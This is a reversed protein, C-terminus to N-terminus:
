GLRKLMNCRRSCLAARRWPTVSIFSHVFPGQSLTWICPAHLSNLTGAKLPAAPGSGPFAGLWSRFVATPHDFCPQSNKTWLANGVFSGKVRRKWCSFLSTRILSSSRTRALDQITFMSTLELSESSAKWKWPLFFTATYGLLLFFKWQPWESTEMLLTFGAAPQKSAAFASWLDFKQKRRTLHAGSFMEIDADESTNGETPPKYKSLLPLILPPALYHPPPPPPFQLPPDELGQKWIFVM